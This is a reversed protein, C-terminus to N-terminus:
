NLLIKLEDIIKQCDNKVNKATVRIVKWGNKILTEDRVKDKNIVSELNHTSGDIEINIKYRIFAFDLSYRKYPYEQIWGKIENKELCERFIKEPYSEKSSHNLLYPIQGPNKDLYKKRGISIKLKHEDTLIRNKGKDSIKKLRKEKLPNLVCNVKHGGLSQGSSFQKNCFDCVHHKNSKKKTDKKKKYVSPRNHVSLHGKLQTRSNFPGKGCIDCYCVEKKHTNYHPTLQSQAEFELNCIKCKVM